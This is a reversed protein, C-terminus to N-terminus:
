DHGIKILDCINVTEGTGNEFFQDCFAAEEVTEHGHGCIWFPPGSHDAPRLVKKWVYRSGFELDLIQAVGYIYPTNRGRNLIRDIEGINM